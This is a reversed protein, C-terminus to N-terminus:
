CLGQTKFNPKTHVVSSPFMEANRSFTFDSNHIFIRSFAGMHPCPVVKHSIHVAGRGGAAGVCVCVPAVQLSLACTCVSGAPGLSVLCSFSGQSKGVPFSLLFHHVSSGLKLDINKVKIHLYISFSVVNLVAAFSTWAGFRFNKLFLLSSGFCAPHPSPPRAWLGPGKLPM